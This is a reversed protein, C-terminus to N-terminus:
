DSYVIDVEIRRRRQGRVRGQSRAEDSVARRDKAMRQRRVMARWSSEGKGNLGCAILAVAEIYRCTVADEKIGLKMQRGIWKWAPRRGSARWGAVVKVLRRADEDLFQGLWGTAVDAQDIAEPSPRLPRIRVHSVGDVGEGGYDFIDAHRMDPWYAKVHLWGM